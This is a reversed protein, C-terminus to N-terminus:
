FAPARGMSSNVRLRLSRLLRNALKYGDLSTLMIQTIRQMWGQEEDTLHYPGLEPEGLEEMLEKVKERLEAIDELERQHAEDAKRKKRAALNVLEGMKKGIRRTM